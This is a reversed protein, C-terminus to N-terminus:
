EEVNSSLKDKFGEGNHLTGSKCTNELVPRVKRLDADPFDPPRELPGKYYRCPVYSAFAAQQDAKSPKSGVASHM